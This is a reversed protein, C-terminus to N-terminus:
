VLDAIMQPWDGMMRMVGADVIAHVVGVNELCAAARATLRVTEPALMIQAIKEPEGRLLTFGGLDGGHYSLMVTEISEIEGAEKLSNWYAASEGFVKAAAIERGARPSGWGIFLAFEAM